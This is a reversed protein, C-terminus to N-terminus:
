IKLDNQLSQQDINEVKKNISKLMEFTKIESIKKDNLAISLIQM